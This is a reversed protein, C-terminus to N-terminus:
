VSVLNITVGKFLDKVRKSEMMDAQCFELGPLVWSDMKETDTDM